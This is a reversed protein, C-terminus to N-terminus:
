PTYPNFGGGYAAAEPSAPCECSLYGGQGRIENGCVPCPQEDENILELIIQARKEPTAETAGPTLAKVGAIIELGHKMMQNESQLRVLKKVNDESM